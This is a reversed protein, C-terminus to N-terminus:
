RERDERLLATSDPMEGYKTYLNERLTNIQQVTAARAETDDESTLWIELLQEISNFGRKQASTKLRDHLTDSLILTRSM